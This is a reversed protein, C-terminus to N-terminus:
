RPSHGPRRHHGHQRLRGADPLGAAAAAGALGAPLPHCEREQDLPFVSINVTGNKLDDDLPTPQPWGRYIRAPTDTASEAATGDPYVAQAITAVLLDEVQSLDAM